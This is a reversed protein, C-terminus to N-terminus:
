DSLWRNIDVILAAVVCALLAGWLLGLLGYTNARMVFQRDFFHSLPSISLRMAMRGATQWLLFPSSEPRLWGRRPLAPNRSIRPEHEANIICKDERDRSTGATRIHM